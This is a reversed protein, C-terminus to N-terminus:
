DEMDKLTESLLNGMRYATYEISPIIQEYSMRTPGIIGICGLNNGASGYKAFILSSPKLVSYNTDTGFIIDLPKESNSILSLLAERRNIISIIKDADERQKCFAFLNSHGAVSVGSNKIDSVMDFLTSILPMLTLAHNGAATFINQMAAPTLNDISQRLIREAILKDFVSLLEAKIPSSIHCLRSRSRGDTTIVILMVSHAGMQLIEVRKLAPGGKSINTALAPLGTIETLAEGAKEPVKEPDCSASSLYGDIIKRNDDSLDAKGMLTDVYLRYGLPTPIRGASTHPQELLGLECLASMENRLTASSPANELVDCLIKSGIPEGTAIHLKIIASLIAKKRESLEM